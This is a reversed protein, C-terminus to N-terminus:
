FNIYSHPRKLYQTIFIDMCLAIALTRGSEGNLNTISTERQM